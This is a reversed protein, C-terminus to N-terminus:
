LILIYMGNSLFIYHIATSFIVNFFVYKQAPSFYEFNYYKKETKKKKAIKM